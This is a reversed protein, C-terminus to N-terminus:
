RRRRAFNAAVFSLLGLVIALIAHKYHPGPTTFWHIVGLAYLVGIVILVIGLLVLLSPLLVRL